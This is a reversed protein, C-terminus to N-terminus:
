LIREKLTELNEVVGRMLIPCLSKISNKLQENIKKRTELTHFIIVIAIESQIPQQIDM